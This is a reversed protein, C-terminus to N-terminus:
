RAGHHKKTLGFPLKARLIAIELDAFRDLLFTQVGTQFTNLAKTVEAAVIAAVDEGTLSRSPDQAHWRAHMNSDFMWAGCIDCVTDPEPEDRGALPLETVSALRPQDSSLGEPRLRVMRGELTDVVEIYRKRLSNLSENALSRRGSAIKEDESLEPGRRPGERSERSAARAEYRRLAKGPAITIELKEMIEDVPHWQRDELLTLLTRSEIAM